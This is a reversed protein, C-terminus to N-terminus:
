AKTTGMMRVSYHVWVEGLVKAAEGSAAYAISGPAQDFGEAKTVDAEISYWQRSQLKNAPIQWGRISQWVPADRCPTKALVGARDLSQLKHNCYKDGVLKTVVAQSWDFGLAIMGDTNAGVAPRWEVVCQNWRIREFVSSVGKLFPFNAPVLLFSGVVKGDSGTKIEVIMESRALTVDGDGLGGRGSRGRRSKGAGGPVAVVSGMTGPTPGGGQRRLKRKQRRRRNRLTKNSPQSTGPNVDLRQLCRVLESIVERNM